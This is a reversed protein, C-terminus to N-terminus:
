LGKLLSSVMAQQPYRDGLKALTELEAKASSKQGVKLYAKALALRSDTADPALELVRKLSNIGADVKGAELQLQGLTDLFAPQNPVRATVQEALALAAKVDGTKGMVWALNNSAAPDGPLLEAVKKYYPLAATHDGKSIFGEALFNRYAVDKPNAKLWAETHKDLEAASGMAKLVLGIRVALEASNSRKLGERYVALSEPFSKKAAKIDGELLFGIALKPQTKQLVQARKLAESEMGSQVDLQTAARQLAVSDPLAALGKSLTERAADSQKAMMQLEALRLYAADNSPQISLLKGYLSIAQNFDGSAQMARGAAEMVEPQQPMASIADQAVSLAKKNEKNALLYGILAARPRGDAPNASIAKNLIEIIEEPKGKQTFKLDALALYAMIQKPDKAILGEFRKAADAIKKDAVDLKALAAVAAFYTPERELALELSARAGTLDRKGLLATARLASPIPSKPEKKELNAIAVLAKDFQQQKLNTAILAMDATTGSDTLALSELESVGRVVDGKQAHILALATLAKTNGAKEKSARTFYAEAKSVDGQQLALEGALGLADASPKGKDVVPQLTSIAKDLQRTRAYSRALALRALEAEPNATLTQSLHEQAQLDAGKQFEALGAIQLVRHDVKAGSLLPQLSQLVADFNREQYAIVAKLYNVQSNKPLAKQMADLQGKALDVKEKQLYLSVLGAHAQASDSKLALAAKFSLEAEALKKLSVEIAAKQLLADISKPHQKVVGLTQELGKQLGDEVVSIRAQLLLANVNEADASLAEVLAANAEPLKNMTIYAQALLTKLESQRAPVDLVMNAYEAIVEKGQGKLLSVRILEPVVDSKAAGGNLAKKLEVEAGALDGSQLLATGLLFRADKRGADKALVNKLEIIAAAADNKELHKKASAMLKDPSDGGCGSMTLLLAFALASLSVAEIHKTM